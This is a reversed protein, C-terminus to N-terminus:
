LCRALEQWGGREMCPTGALTEDAVLASEPRGPASLVRGGCARVDSTYAICSVILAELPDKSMAMYDYNSTCEGRSAWLACSQHSDRCRYASGKQAAVGALLVLLTHARLMAAINPQWNDSPAAAVPHLRITVRARAHAASKTGFSVLVPM